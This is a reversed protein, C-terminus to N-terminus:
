SAVYASLKTGYHLVSPYWVTGGLNSYGGSINATYKQYECFQLYAQWKGEAIQMYDRVKDKDDTTKGDGYKINQSNRLYWNGDSPLLAPKM